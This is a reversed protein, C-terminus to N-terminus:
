ISVLAFSIKPPPFILLLLTFQVIVERSIILYREDQVIKFEQIWMVFWFHFSFAVLIEGVIGRRVLAGWLDWIMLFDWILEFEFLRRIMKRINRM